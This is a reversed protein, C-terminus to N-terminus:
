KTNADDRIEKAIMLFQSLATIHKYKSSYDPDSQDLSTIMNKIDALQKDLTNVCMVMWKNDIQNSM